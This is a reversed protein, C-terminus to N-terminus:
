DPLINDPMGFQATGAEVVALDNPRMFDAIRPWIWSQTIHTADSDISRPVPPLMHKSPRPLKPKQIKLISRQFIGGMNVNRFNHHGAKPM